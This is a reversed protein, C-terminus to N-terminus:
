QGPKSGPTAKKMNRINANEKDAEEVYDKGIEIVKDFQKSAETFQESIRYAVGMYFYPDPFDPAIKKAQSYAEEVHMLWNKNMSERGMIYLRMYGVNAAAKQEDERTHGDAKKMTELGKDFDGKFGYVLGLGVYAPSYTPDLEKARNFERFAADIKEIKLLQM